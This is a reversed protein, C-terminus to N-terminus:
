DNGIGGQLRYRRVQTGHYESSSVLEGHKELWEDMFHRADWMEVESRMVWIDVVGETAARMDVDVMARTQEDPYGHNTWLGGMWRGLREDSGDFPSSGFGSSYYRYAYEMHPIQVILLEDGSRAEAIETVASRLDYKITRTKQQWGGVGWFLVIYLLLGVSLPKALAGSNRWVLLLGLAMLMAAAPAIWIVYRPTFVPQRLSMVYISALPVLLWAVVMVYRRWAPLRGLSGNPPIHIELYGVVLGALGLFFIPAFWVLDTDPMFGKSQDLLVRQLMELLPTFTFGTRKEGDWLLDWQWALLPLYPLTLGALALGYGKWHARSQPWAVCFWIFHFPILLIMLLHSYMAISVTALYGLWSKWGGGSIGKLWLWSSLLALLTVLSYMKGEQSYWLQYPNVAFFIAAVLPANGLTLTWLSPPEDYTVSASQEEQGIPESRLGFPENSHDPAAIEDQQTNSRQPESSPRSPVLRRAVQWLLPIALVGFCLSPYRLAYETSGVAQLWPRLALFFLAGNQGVDMFMSLTASLDRLAFYVADVEDRWLSQRGLNHIRWGFSAMTLALMILRLTQRGSLASRMQVVPMFM